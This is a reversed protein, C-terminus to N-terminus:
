QPNGTIDEISFTDLDNQFQNMTEDLGKQSLVDDDNVVICVYKHKLEESMGSQDMTHKVHKCMFSQDEYISVHDKYFSHPATLKNEQKMTAENMDEHESMTDNGITEVISRWEDGFCYSHYVERCHMDLAELSQATVTQSFSLQVLLFGAIMGAVLYLIWKEWAKPVKYNISM